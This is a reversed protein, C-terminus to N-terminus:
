FRRVRRASLGNKSSFLAIGNRGHKKYFGSFRSMPAELRSFFDAPKRWSVAMQSLKNKAIMRKHDQIDILAFDAEDTPINIAKGTEDVQIEEFFLAEYDEVTLPTRQNLRELRNNELQDKYGEM